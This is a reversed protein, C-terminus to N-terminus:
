LREVSIRYQPTGNQKDSLIVDEGSLKKFRLVHQAVAILAEITVDEKNVGWARGDKIVDGAFITGTLPSMAVHIKNTKM